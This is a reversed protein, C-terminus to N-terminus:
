CCLACQNQVTSDSEPWDSTPSNRGINLPWWADASSPFLEYQTHSNKGQLAGQKAFWILVLIYLRQFLWVGFDVFYNGLRFAGKKALLMQKIIITCSMRTPPHQTDPVNWQSQESEEWFATQFIIASFGSILEWNLISEMYQHHAIGTRRMKTQLM